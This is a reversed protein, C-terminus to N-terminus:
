PNGVRHQIQLMRHAVLHCPGSKAKQTTADAPPMALTVIAFGHMPDNTPRLAVVVCQVVLTHDRKSLGGTVGASFSQSQLDVIFILLRRRPERARAPTDPRAALALAASRALPTIVDRSTQSARPREPRVMEDSVSQRCILPPTDYINSQPSKLAPAPMPPVPVPRTLVPSLVNLIGTAPEAVARPAPVAVGILPAVCAVWCSQSECIIAQSCTTPVASESKPGALTTMWM